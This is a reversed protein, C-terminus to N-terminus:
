ENNFLSCKNPFKSLNSFNTFYIEQDPLYQFNFYNIKTNQVQYSTTFVNPTETNPTPKNCSYYKYMEMYSIEQEKSPKLEESLSHSQSNFCDLEDQKVYFHNNLQNFKEDDEFLYTLDNKLCNM